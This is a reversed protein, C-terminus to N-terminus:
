KAETLEGRFAKALIAQTTREVQATAEALRSEISDALAFLSEVRRAIEVQEAPPPIPLVMERCQTLSINSQGASGRTQMLIDEYPLGSCLVLYLWETSVRASPRFLTLAQNFTWVPFEDTVVAVKGLPPGVINMVVDGPIATSRVISKSRAVTDSVFQPKYDFSLKQDVVEHSRILSEVMGDTLGSPLGAIFEDSVDFGDAELLMPTMQLKDCGAGSDCMESEFDHGSQYEAWEGAALIRLYHGDQVNEALRRAVGEGESSAEISCAALGYGIVLNLTAHGAEHYARVLDPCPRDKM